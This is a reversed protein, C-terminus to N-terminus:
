TATIIRASIGVHRSLLQNLARKENWDPAIAAQRIARFMQWIEPIPQILFEILEAAHRPSILEVRTPISIRLGSFPNRIKRLLVDNGYAPLFNTSESPQQALRALNKALLADVQAHRAVHFENLALM